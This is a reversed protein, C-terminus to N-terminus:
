EKPVNYSTEQDHKHEAARVNNQTNSVKSTKTTSAFPSPLPTSLGPTTTQKPPSLRFVFFGFAVAFVELGFHTSDNSNYTCHIETDSFSILVTM